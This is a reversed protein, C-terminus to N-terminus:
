TPRKAVINHGCKNLLVTSTILRITFHIQVTFTWIEPQLKMKMKMKERASSSSPRARLGSWFRSPEPKISRAWLDLQHFFCSCCSVEMIFFIFFIFIISEESSAHFTDASYNGSGAHKHGWSPPKIWISLWLRSLFVLQSVGFIGPIMKMREGPKMM